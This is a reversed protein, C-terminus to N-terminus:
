IESGLNGSGRVLTRKGLLGRVLFDVVVVVVLDEVELAGRRGRARVRPLEPVEDAPPLHSFIIM